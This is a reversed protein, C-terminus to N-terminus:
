HAYIGRCFTTPLPLGVSKFAARQYCCYYIGKFDRKRLGKAIHAKKAKRYMKKPCYEYRNESGPALPLRIGPGITINTDLETAPNQTDIDFELWLLDADQIINVNELRRPNTALGKFQYPGHKKRHFVYIEDAEEVLHDEQGSYQGCWTLVDNKLTDHYDYTKGKVVLPEDSIFLSVRMITIVKSDGCRFEDDPASMITALQKKQQLLPKSEYNELAQMELQLRREDEEKRRKMLKQEHELQKQKNVREAEENTTSQGAFRRLRVRRIEEMDRGIAFNMIEERRRKTGNKREKREIAAPHFRELRNLLVQTM